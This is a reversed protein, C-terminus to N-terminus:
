KIMTKMSAVFGDIDEITTDFSCVWRVVDEEENWTYFFCHEKLPEIVDKPLTVFLQNTEVKQTIQVGAVKAAERALIAAMRNSHSATSLWLDDKLMRLFQAAIFRGKSHLQMQQKRLYKAQKPLQKKFFLVAEGFMMGNKTGGFSLADVGVNTTIDAPTCGLAAVANAFRAGDMHLYLDNAHAFDAIEKIEEPTYLTGLETPQSISVVRPQTRHQDGVNGLQSKIGEVTIKGNDSPITMIKSGLQVELAGCEDVNIHASQASVVAEYSQMFASIALINAGTGNYVLFTQTDQGFMEKFKNELEATYEDNAYPSAHGCSAEGLATLVLPHVGSYNDSGFGRNKM